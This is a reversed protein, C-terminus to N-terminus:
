RAAYDKLFQVFEEWKAMQVDIMFEDLRDITMVVETHNPIPLITVVFSFFDEPTIDTIIAAKTSKILVGVKAVIMKKREHDYVVAINVGGSYVGVVISLFPSLVHFAITRLLVAARSVWLTRHLPCVYDEWNVRGRECLPCKETDNVAGLFEFFENRSFNWVKEM